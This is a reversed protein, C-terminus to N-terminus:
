IFRKKKKNKKFTPCKKIKYRERNILLDELFALRKKYAQLSIEMSKMQITYNTIEDSCDQNLSKLKLFEIKNITTDSDCSKQSALSLSFFLFILTIYRM